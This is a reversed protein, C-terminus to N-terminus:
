PLTYIEVFLPSLQISFFSPKGAEIKPIRENAILSFVINAPNDLPL